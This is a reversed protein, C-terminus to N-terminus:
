LARAQAGRTRFTQPLLTRWPTSIRSSARSLMFAGSSSRAQRTHLHQVLFLLSPSAKSNCLASTVCTHDVFLISICIKSAAGGTCKENTSAAVTALRVRVKNGRGRLLAQRSTSIHEIRSCNIAPRRVPRSDLKESRSALRHVGARVCARM